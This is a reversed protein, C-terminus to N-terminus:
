DKNKAWNLFTKPGSPNSNQYGQCSIEFRKGKVVNIVYNYAQSDGPLAIYLDGPGEKLSAILAAAFCGAGNFEIKPKKGTLGNVLTGSLIFKVLEVGLGSPYGDFHRYVSVLNKGDEQIHITAHTSM